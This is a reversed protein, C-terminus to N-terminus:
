AHEDVCQRGKHEESDDLGDSVICTTKERAIYVLNSRSFNSVSVPYRGKWGTDVRPPDESVARDHHRTSSREVSPPM